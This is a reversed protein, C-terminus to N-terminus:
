IRSVEPEPVANEKLTSRRFPDEPFLFHLKKRGRKRLRKKKRYRQRKRFRQRKRIREGERRFSVVPLFFASFVNRGFLWNQLRPKVAKVPMAAPIFQSFVGTNRYATGSEEHGAKGSL